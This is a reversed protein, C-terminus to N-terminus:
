DLMYYINCGADKYTLKYTGGIIATTCNQPSTGYARITGENATGDDMKIDLKKAKEPSFAVTSCLFSYPAGLRLHNGVIKYYSNITYNPAICVRKESLSSDCPLDGQCTKGWEYHGTYNTPLIKALGLHQWFRYQEMNQGGSKVEIRGNGNGNCLDNNSGATYDQCDDPWYDEADTIDGPLADYQLEFAKTATKYSQLRQTMSHYKGAEILARGGVVGGVILGIIVLVISLEVLTFGNQTHHSDPM